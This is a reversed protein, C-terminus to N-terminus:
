VRMVDCKFNGPVVVALIGHEPGNEQRAIFAPRWLPGSLSYLSQPEHASATAQGDDEQKIPLIGLVCKGLQLARINRCRRGCSPGLVTLCSVSQRQVGARGTQVQLSTSRSSTGMRGMVEAVSRTVHTSLRLFCIMPDRVAFSLCSPSESLVPRAARSITDLHTSAPAGSERCGVSMKIPAAGHKRSRAIPM